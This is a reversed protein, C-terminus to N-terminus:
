SYAVWSVALLKVGGFICPTSLSLWDGNPRRFMGRTGYVRSPRPPGMM